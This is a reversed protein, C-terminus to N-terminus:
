IFFFADAIVNKPLQAGKRMMVLGLQGNEKSKKQLEDLEQNVKSPVRRPRTFNAFCIASLGLEIEESSLLGSEEWEM